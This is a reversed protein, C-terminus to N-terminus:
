FYTEGAFRCQGVFIEKASYLSGQEYFLVMAKKYGLAEANRYSLPCCGGAMLLANAVIRATRKNGDAFPQIYSLLVLAYLAKAFPSETQNILHCAAALAERIQFENELPLYSTGVIGVRHHRVGCDVDLGEVLLRHVDEIGRPTLPNLYDPQAILFEMARKHNLLMVAEDRSHGPAEERRKLLRETELLTYTNGEIQSSKWSLDIALREMEVANETASRSALRKQYLIRLNELEEVERPTFPSGIEGLVGVLEFNFGKAGGRADDERSFYSDLDYPLLLASRPTLSYRVAKGRGCAVADGRGIAEALWRKLTSASVREPLIEALESRRANPHSRLGHLLQLYGDM